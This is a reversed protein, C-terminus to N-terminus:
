WRAARTLSTFSDLDHRQDVTGTAVCSAVM